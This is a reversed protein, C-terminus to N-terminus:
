HLRCVNVMKREVEKGDGFQSALRSLLSKKLFQGGTVKGGRERDGSQAKPTINRKKQKILRSALNVNLKHIAVRPDIGLM